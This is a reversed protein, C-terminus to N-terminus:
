QDEQCCIMMPVIIAQHQDSSLGNFSGITVWM